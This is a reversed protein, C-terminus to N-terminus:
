DVEEYSNYSYIPVDYGRSALPRQISKIKQTEIGTDLNLSFL